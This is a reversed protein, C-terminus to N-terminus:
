FLMFLMFIYRQNDTISFLQDFNVLRGFNNLELEKISLVVRETQVSGM